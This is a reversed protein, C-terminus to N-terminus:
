SNTKVKTKIKRASVSRIIYELLFSITVVILLILITAPSHHIEYIVLMVLSFLCGLIALWIILPKSNTKKYIKLHAMNVAAYIILFSASGFMAISGLQFVNVFLIVLASTIYLGEKSDRWAKREFFAPLEGEKSMIYSVNAGGYLTANIASSTSFLAALAIIKFGISGLFPRAAEALAYEKAAIIKAISINGVVTLSVAIYIAITILVSLYLAKPLTKKPNNMDAASNTILGFGEYALFILAAGYILNSIQNNQWNIHLLKPQIFFLGSGIFLLLILVKIAVIIKESGGVAKSGVANIATFIIIIATAFFNIWIHSAGATLLSYAYGGFASAYLALAFVYGIWLLINFGGSILNDGFGHILFEVPGGATPYTSGLKAFSYTNLLAVIGSLLFALYMLNGSIQAAVGLISFIGAGIMGGIGIAVAGWLTINNKQEM